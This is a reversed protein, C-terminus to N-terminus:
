KVRVRIPQRVRQSIVTAIDLQPDDVEVTVAVAFRQTVASTDWNRQAIVALTYPNKSYSDKHIKWTFIDHQVTSRSRRQSSLLGPLENPVDGAFGATAEDISMATVIDNPVIDGRFLKWSM